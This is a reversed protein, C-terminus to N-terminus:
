PKEYKRVAEDYAAKDPKVFQKIQLDKCVNAAKKCMEQLMTAIAASEPQKGFAVVPPPPVAPSDFISKLSADQQKASALTEDDVVTADATGSRVDNLGQAPRPSTKIEAFYSKPDDIGLIVRLFKEDGITRNLSLKKGKLDKLAKAGGDKVVVHYHGGMKIALEAGAIPELGYEKHLALFTAFDVIGFSPKASKIYDVAGDRKPFFKGQASNAPWKLQKEAYDMFQRIFPAASQEDGGTGSLQVVFDHPGAWAPTAALVLSLLLGFRM